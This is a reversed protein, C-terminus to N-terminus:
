IGLRKKQYKNVEELVKEEVEDLTSENVVFGSAQKHGGGGFAKAIPTIDVGVRSRISGKIVGEEKEMLLIFVEGEPVSTMLHDTFGTTDDYEAGTEQFDELTVSSWVFKITEDLKMRELIKGWLKLQALPKSKFLNRVVEQHRAGTLLLKSAVVLTGPSVNPHQFGGTDAMMGTLLCTAIDEDILSTNITEMLNFAVECSSSFKPEVLNITGFHTNTAHHDIILLPVQSFLDPFNQQTLALMDMSATDTVVLLDFPYLSQSFSIEEPSLSGQNPTLIIDLTKDTKKYRLSAPRSKTTDISIIFDRKVELTVKINIIDPLFQYNRPIEEYSVSTAIKGLKECFLHLGLQSGVSDGDPNDPGVLLIHNAQKISDAAKQYLENKM